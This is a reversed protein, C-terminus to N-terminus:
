WKILDEEEIPKVIAIKKLELNSNIQVLDIPASLYNAVVTKLGLETAGYIDYTAIDKIIDIGNYTIKNILQYETEIDFNNTIKKSNALVDIDIIEDKENPLYILDYNTSILLNRIFDFSKKFSPSSRLSLIEEFYHTKTKHKRFEAQPNFYIEFLIGNLLHNEGDPESYKKLNSDLDQMFEVANFAAGSSQLLNRGLIFMQNKDLSNKPIKLVDYIAPNQINWDYSKIKKILMGFEDNKVYNVDKVVDESYPISVSHVMQGNNFYFDGILSTHEWTTQKGSSLNFVTKRVKKFLEEVSLRERGIYKLLSGTFISNGEYGVDSAGDNPSTSFAILTGKPAQIPSTAIIGGREFSRRCADIIAINIKNSNNKYISLLDTLQICTQKCHYTNPLDIQCETFALYNEGEVEFGHGAFYFITADYNKIRDEFETLLEVIKQSNGNECFIVDYGLKEFVQKISHADNLANDLKYKDYYNNNGIVLALTKM